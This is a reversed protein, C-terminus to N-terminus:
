ARSDGAAEHATTGVVQGANRGADSWADIGSAVAFQGASGIADFAAALPSPDIALWYDDGRGAAPRGRHVVVRQASLADGRFEATGASGGAPFQRACHVGCRAALACRGWVSRHTAATERRCT